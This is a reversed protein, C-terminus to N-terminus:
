DWGMRAKELNIKINYLGGVEECHDREKQNLEGIDQICEEEGRVWTMRKSKELRIIITLIFSTFSENHLKRWGGRVESRKPGFLRRLVM